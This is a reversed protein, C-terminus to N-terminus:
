NTRRIYSHRRSSDDRHTLLLINSELQMYWYEYAVVNNGLCLELTLHGDSCIEWTFHQILPSFGSSGSGDANFIYLWNTAETWEWTGVLLPDGEVFAVAEIHERHFGFQGCGAFSLTILIITLLKFLKM